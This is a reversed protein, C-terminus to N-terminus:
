STLCSDVWELYDRSGDMPVYVIQPLEYPHQARLLTEIAPALERRTKLRLEIEEDQRTEGNWVYLSTLTAGVQACAVLRADLLARACALASARDPFTSIVICYSATM